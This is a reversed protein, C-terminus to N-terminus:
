KNGGSAMSVPRRQERRAIATAAKSSPLEIGVLEGKIWVQTLAHEGGDTSFALKTRVAPDLSQVPHTILSALVRGREDRVEIRDQATRVLRYAGAPLTKDGVTFPFPVEAQVIRPAYQGSAIGALLLVAFSLLTWTRTFMHKM